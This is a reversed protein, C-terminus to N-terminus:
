SVSNPVTWILNATALRNLAFECLRTAPVHTGLLAKYYRTTLSSVATHSYGYACLCIAAPASQAPEISKPSVHLVAPALMVHMSLTPPSPHFPASPPRLPPSASLACLASASPRACLPPHLLAHSDLFRASHSDDARRHFNCHFHPCTTHHQRRMTAAHPDRRGYRPLLYRCPFMRSPAARSWCLRSSPGSATVLNCCCLSPQKRAVCISPKCIGYQRCRQM